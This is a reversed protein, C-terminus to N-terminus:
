RESTPSNLKEIPKSSICSSTATAVNRACAEKYSSGISRCDDGSARSKQMQDVEKVSKYQVEDVGNYQDASDCLCLPLSLQAHGGCRGAKQNISRMSM